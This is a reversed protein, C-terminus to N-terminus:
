KEGKWRRVRGFGDSTAWQTAKANKKGRSNQKGMKEFVDGGVALSDM